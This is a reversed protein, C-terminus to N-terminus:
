PKRALLSELDAAPSFYFTRGIKRAVLFGKKALDLLDTRATQYVVGHSTRHSQISYRADPHRLAHSLLALQRYNFAESRRLVQETKRLEQMKQRLYEHLHRIALNIVRLHYLV